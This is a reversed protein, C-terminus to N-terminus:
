TVGKKEKALFRDYSDLNMQEFRKIERQIDLSHGQMASMSKMM